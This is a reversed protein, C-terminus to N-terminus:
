IQAEIKKKLESEYNPTIGVIQGVITGKKYLYLTPISMVGYKTAIQPAQEINLKCVKLKGKYDQATKDLLGSVERCPGCWPAWFDVVVPVESKLVENEFNDDKVNVTSAEEM